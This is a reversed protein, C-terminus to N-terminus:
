ISLSMANHSRTAGEHAESGIHLGELFQNPEVVPKEIDYQSRELPMALTQDLGFNGVM